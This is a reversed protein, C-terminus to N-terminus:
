KSVFSVYSLIRLDFDEQLLTRPGNQARTQSETLLLLADPDWSLSQRMQVVVKNSNLMPSWRLQSYDTLVEDQSQASWYNMQPIWLLKKAHIMVFMFMELRKVFLYMELIITLAIEGSCAHNVVVTDALGRSSKWMSVQDALTKDLIVRDDNVQSPNPAQSRKAVQMQIYYEKFESPCNRVFEAMDDEDRQIYLKKWACERPKKPPLLGWRMCYLRRWLSEDAAAFNLFRCVMSCSVLDESSLFKLIHFLLEPPIRSFMGSEIRWPLQRNETSHKGDNKNNGIVMNNKKPPSPAAEIESELEVSSLSSSSLSRVARLVGDNSLEGEEIRIKKAEQQEKEEQESLEGEEIRLRKGDREEEGHENEDEVTDGKELDSLESLVESELFQALSEAEDDSAM